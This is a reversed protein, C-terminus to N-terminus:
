KIHCAFCLNQFSDREGIVLGQGDGPSYPDHCTCCGMKGDFLKIRPDLDKIGVLDKTRMTANYYDVGVPHSLGIGEIAHRWIGSGLTTKPVSGPDNHCDLCAVSLKDLGTSPDLVDFRAFGHSRDMAPRHSVTKQTQGVGNAASVLMIQRLAEDSSHCALCFAKGAPERRLFYTHEGTLENIYPKHVDHCTVCTIHGTEDLPLDKPIDMGQPVFDVRHSVTKSMDHCRGCMSSISDMFRMPGVDGEKPITFHCSFCDSDTFAHPSESGSLYGVALAAGGLFAAVMFIIIVKRM